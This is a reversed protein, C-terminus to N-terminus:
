PNEDDSPDDTMGDEEDETDLMGHHRQSREILNAGTEENTIKLDIGRDIIELLEKLLDQDIFGVDEHWYFGIEMMEWPRRLQKQSQPGSAFIRPLNKLLYDRGGFLSLDGLHPLFRRSEGQEDTSSLATTALLDLFHNEINLHFVRLIKLHPTAYSDSSNTKPPMLSSQTLFSLIDNILGGEVVFSCIVLRQVSHSVVTDVPIGFGGSGEVVLSFECTVMSSALQFLQLCEDVFVEGLRVTNVHRWDIGVSRFYFTKVEVSILSPATQGLHFSGESRETRFGSTNKILITQLASVGHLDGRLLAVLSHPLAVKLDRWRASQRSLLYMLPRFLDASSSLDREGRSHLRISLPLSGSRALWEQTMLTQWDVISPDLYLNLRTWLRPTSWAIDRWRKCVTGLLLPPQTVYPLPNLFPYYPLPEEGAFMCLTFVRSVLEPPLKNVPDHFQNM